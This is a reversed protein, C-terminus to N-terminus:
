KIGIFPTVQGWYLPTKGDWKEIWRLETVQPSQKLAEGEIQISKAKGQADAIRQEAEIKIRALMNEATLVNQQAVQKAEVAKEYENSFDFNVISFEDVIIDRKSLREKLEDKIENKVKERLEILEQAKYKATVAKIVEQVSPDIIRQEYDMGIEQFVRNVSVPNIHYNLAIKADVTQLDNSYSAAETQMKVTRVDMIKVKQIIPIKFYLGENFIEKVAGFQLLVGREGAGVTGFTGLLISLLFMAVIIHFIMKGWKMKSEEENIYNFLKTM